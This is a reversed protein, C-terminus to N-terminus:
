TIASIGEIKSDTIDMMSQVVPNISSVIEGIRNVENPMEADFWERLKVLAENSRGVAAEEALAFYVSLCTIADLIETLM